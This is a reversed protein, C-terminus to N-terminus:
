FTVRTSFSMCKSFAFISFTRHMYNWMDTPFPGLNHQSAVHKVSTNDVNPGWTDRVRFIRDSTDLIIIYITLNKKKLYRVLQIIINLTDLRIESM